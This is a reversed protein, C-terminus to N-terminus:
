QGPMHIIDRQKVIRRQQITTEFQVCVPTIDSIYFCIFTNREVHYISEKTRLAFVFTSIHMSTADLFGNTKM